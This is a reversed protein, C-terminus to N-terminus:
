YKKVKSEPVLKNIINRVEIENFGQLAIELDNMLIQFRSFDVNKEKAKFILPHDTKDAKSDILLEEYMKEGKRLGTTIIEIDGNPNDKNKLTLGNLYIMHKALDFIKLPNGMDLLFVEGGNAMAASQIVLLAAEQVTMFYRVVDPHTLTVPGGSSIQSQFLPVVSGSSGLVNGFRVMSFAISDTHKQNELILKEQAYIQVLMEAIRKSAGMINTPRVAKDTSILIFKDVKYNKSAECLLRTSFINNIAGEIVNEEVIPVHKYAAAHFVINIKYNNFINKIVQKKTVNGLISIIKFDNFNDSKLEKDINYLNEESHDVIILISPKLKAVQRCLESGISGGAGTILIVKNYIHNTTLNESAKVANRGLIYDLTVEKLNNLVIEKSSVQSVSPIQFIPIKYESIDIFRKILNEKKLTPISMLIMDISNQHKKLTSPPLIERGDIFKNWLKKDDDIIFKVQFDTDYKLSSLLKAGSKGAGYIVVIKKKEILFRLKIISDRILLRVGVSLLSITLWFTIYFKFDFKNLFIYNILLFIFSVILNIKSIKYLTKSGLYRTLNNYQGSKLYIFISLLTSLIVVFFYRNDLSITLNENTTLWISFYVSFIIIFIDAIIILVLRKPRSLSLIKNLYDLFFM